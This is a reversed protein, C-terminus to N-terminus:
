RHRDRPRQGLRLHTSKGERRREKRASLSRKCLVVELVTEGDEDAFFDCGPEGHGLGIRAGVEPLVDEVGYVRNHPLRLNHAALVLPFPHTCKRMSRRGVFSVKEGSRCGGDEVTGTEWDRRSSTTEAVLGVRRDCASGSKTETIHARQRRRKKREKEAHKEDQKNDLMIERLRTEKLRVVDQATSYGRRKEPTKERRRRRSSLSGEERGRRLDRQRADYQMRGQLRGV